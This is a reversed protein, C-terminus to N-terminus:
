ARDRNGVHMCLAAAWFPNCWEDYWKVYDERTRLRAIWPEAFNVFDRIMSKGFESPLTALGFKWGVSSGTKLYGVDVFGTNALQSCQDIIGAELLINAIAPHLINLHIGVHGGDTNRWKDRIVDVRVMSDPRHAVYSRSIGRSKERQSDREYDLSLLRVGLSEDIARNLSKSIANAM